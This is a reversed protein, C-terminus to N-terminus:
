VISLRKSVDTLLAGTVKGNDLYKCWKEIMRLLCHQASFGKRFGCQCRSLINEFLLSMQECLIREYVKSLNPLISIPRYNSKENRSNKKHIRKPKHILKIDAMKLFDPFEAKEINSSFNNEIFEAFIEINEKIIKTPIYNEQCAKLIDLNRINKEIEASNAKQFTFTESHEIKEEIMKISPHNGYKKIAKLVPDDIISTDTLIDENTTINLNPVIESFFNNFIEAIKLDDTIIEDNEVLTINDDMMNKDSLFPKVTKWFKKNDIVCKEDLNSYYDKKTKRTLSVCHNRQKNYATKDAKTKTKLFINRLRSRKMIEKQLTKNM